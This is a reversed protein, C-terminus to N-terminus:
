HVTGSAERMAAIEEIGRMALYVAIVQAQIGQGRSEELAEEGVLDADLGDTLWRIAFPKGLIKLRAPRM